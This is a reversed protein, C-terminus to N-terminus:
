ETDDKGAVLLCTLMVGMFAGVMFCIIGTLIM